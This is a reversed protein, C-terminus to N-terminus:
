SGLGWSFKYVMDLKELIFAAVFLGTDLHSFSFKFGIHLSTGGFLLFLRM